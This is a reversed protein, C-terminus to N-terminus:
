DALRELVAVAVPLVLAAMIAFARRQRRRIVKAQEGIAFWVMPFAWRRLVGMVFVGAIFLACWGARPYHGSGFSVLGVPVTVFLTAVAGVTSFDRHLIGYWCRWAALQGIVRKNVAVVKDDDRATILYTASWYDPRQPQEEDGGPFLPNVWGLEVAAADSKGPCFATIRVKVIRREDPNPRSLVVEPVRAEKTGDARYAEFQLREYASALYRLLSRLGEEDIMLADVVVAEKTTSGAQAM